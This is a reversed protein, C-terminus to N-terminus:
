YSMSSTFRSHTHSQSLISLSPTIITSSTLHLPHADSPSHPQPQSADDGNESLQCNSTASEHTPKMQWRGELTGGERDLSPHLIPHLSHMSPINDLKQQTLNVRLRNTEQALSHVRASCSGSSHFVHPPQPVWRPSHAARPFM